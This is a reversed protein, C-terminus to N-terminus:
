RKRGKVFFIKSGLGSYYTINHEVIVGNRSIIENENVMLMSEKQINLIKSIDDNSNSMYIISKSRIPDFQYKGGILDYAICNNKLKEDAKPFYRTPLLSICYVKKKNQIDTYRIKFYINDNNPIYELNFYTNIKKELLTDEGKIVTIDIIERNKVNTYDLISFVFGESHDFIEVNSFSNVFTGKGKIKYLYGMNTLEGIAQRVTPRSILYLECLTNESPIKEGEEYKKNKIDKILDNKLKTYLPLNEM